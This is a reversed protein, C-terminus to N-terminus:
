PQKAEGSVAAPPRCRITGLRAMRPLDGAYHYPAELLDPSKLDVSFQLNSVLDLLPPPPEPNKTADWALLCNEHPVLRPQPLGVAIVTSNPLHLRLNGAVLGDEALILSKAFGKDKLQEAFRNYPINFADFANRQAALIARAPLLLVVVLSIALCITLFTRVATRTPRVALALVLWVPAYFLLPQLWRDKFHTVRFLVVMLELILLTVLLARGLLQRYPQHHGDGAPLSNGPRWFVAVLLAFAVGGFALTSKVLSANGKVLAQWYPLAAQIRFTYAQALAAESNAAFWFLYGSAVLLLAALSLLSRRELIVPRLGPLTLAAVVLAAPLIIVNFKALFGLGVVAGFALYLFTKREECLRLFLYLTLAAVTTALV